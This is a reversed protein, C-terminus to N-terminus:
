KEYEVNFVKGCKKCKYKNINTVNMIISYSGCKPYKEENFKSLIKTEKKNQVM